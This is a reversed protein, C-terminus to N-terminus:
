GGGFNFPGAKFAASGLNQGFSTQFSSLFPNPATVTSSGTQNVTRLGALRSGLGQSSALAGSQAQAQGGVGINLLNFFDARNSAEVPLLIQSAIDEATERFAVGSDALGLANFNAFNRKALEAAQGGVADASIGTSLQGLIGPLDQDGALLQSFLDFGQQQIGIQQDQIARQRELALKNLETEEATATVQKQSSQETTTREGGM